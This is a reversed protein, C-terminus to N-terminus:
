AARAGAPLQAARPSRTEAGGGHMVHGMVFGAASGGARVLANVVLGTNACVRAVAIGVAVWYVASLALCPRMEGPPDPWQTAVALWGALCLSISVPLFASQLPCEHQWVSKPSLRRLQVSSGHAALALWAGACICWHRCCVTAALLRPFSLPHHENM